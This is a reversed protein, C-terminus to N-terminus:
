YVCQRIIFREKDQCLQIFMYSEKHKRHLLFFFDSYKDEVSLESRVTSQPVLIIVRSTFRHVAWHAPKLVVSRARFPFWLIESHWPEISVLMSGGTIRYWSGTLWLASLGQRWESCTQLNRRSSSFVLVYTEWVIRQIADNPVMYTTQRSINYIYM